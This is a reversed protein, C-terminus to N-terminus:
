SIVDISYLVCNLAKSSWCHKYSMGVSSKQYSVSSIIIGVDRANHVNNGSSRILTFCAIIEDFNKGLFKQLSLELISYRITCSKQVKAWVFETFCKSLINIGSFSIDHGNHM